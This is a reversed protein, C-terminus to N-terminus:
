FPFCHALLLGAYGWAILSCLFITGSKTKQFRIRVSPILLALLPTIPIFYRTQMGNIFGGLNPSGWSSAIGAGTLAFFLISIGAIIYKGAPESVLESHRGKLIMIMSAMLLPLVVAVPLIPGFGTFLEINRAVDHADGTTDLSQFLTAFLSRLMLFPHDLIRARGDEFKALDVIASAPISATLKSWIGASFVTSLTSCLCVLWVRKGAQHKFKFPLLWVLLILASCTIKILGLMLSAILLLFTNGAGLMRDQQLLYTVYAVFLLSFSNTVADATPYCISLFYIPLIAIGLFLYQFKRSIHIAVATTFTSLLLTTVAALHVNGFSFLSPLYVLPSNIATNNFNIFKGDGAYGGYAGSGDPNPQALLDGNSIQLARAWHQGGDPWAPNRDFLILILGMIMTFVFYLFAPSVILKEFSPKGKFPL